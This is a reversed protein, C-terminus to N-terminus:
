KRKVMKQTFNFNQNNNQIELTYFYIGTNVARNKSDNGNWEVVYSGAYQIEEVLTVIKQGLLNYINLQVEADTQLQYHIYTIVSFPNPYNQDLKYLDSSSILDIITTDNPDITDKLIDDAGPSGGKYYSARWYISSDQNNTPNLELPVLSNGAGDPSQPWYANDNYVFSCIKEDAIGFITIREGDNDLRGKFEDDPFFGYRKYFYKSSGALVFFEQPKLATNHEFEYDVGKDFKLEGLDLTTNGTNKLEIFEFKDGDITDENLPHYHVETIKLDAYDSPVKLYQDVMASWENNYFVRAKIHTSQNIKFEGSYFVASSSIDGDAPSSSATLSPLIIFDSSTISNNVGQIALLNEGETLEGIYESINFTEKTDTEHNTSNSSNWSVPLSVNASAIQVGNLYAVFGDDYYINLLLTGIESLQAATLNFKIRMYCSTNPNTGSTYMNDSVDLSILSEYGSSKEYGAGGPSGSCVEWNSDDFTSFAMWDTGIDSKPVLVKKSASESILEFSTNDTSWKAPDKGDTTYYIMGSSSNMSLIDGKTIIGDTILNNNINLVPADVQPFMGADRLQNILIQTRQPFNETLIKSSQALWTDQTYLTFPGAAQYQHVDRRYDGWRASEGLVANEVQQSRNLWVEEAKEPTLIGDNYCLVNIRDAFLRKFEENKMLQQFVASPCNYNNEGVVNTNISEIVHESDWCVFQFGKGPKERNRFAAWNHHDWDTNAGYFNIIMYDILSVMDIMSEYQANRTGDPNNGQLKEYTEKSEVNSNVMSVMSNWADINGDMVATYDKIVDYNDADGGGYSAGFDKDIRETPNYLGWYMGNIYLHVFKNHAHPHDIRGQVDKAWADRIYQTQNRQSSEHHIFSNCFGARITITNIKDEADEGFFPYNLKSAGYESRFVLRFSHKPSKEPRRGHGGQLRVGCDEQLSITDDDFYEFSVPREWGAGVGNVTNSLPPGTYIYIGGTVSDEVSSFLNDKDTVLSITPIDKLAMKLNTAFVPDSVLEPDMEYDAIANGTLATYPGWEAPYGAPDNPQNIVDDLFLYTRTTVKSPTQGTVLAVARIISTKNITLPSTYKTGNTKSPVSGDTTYYIEASGIESSINLTFPSEYFGHNMSFVPAPIKSNVTSGSSTGPTPNTIKVYTNEFFGYSIDDEQAPFPDFVTVPTGYVDFFGLYEGSGSLKFNTHLEQGSESIDKGSAFVLLTGGSKIVIDPFLWKKSVTIDDTLSWDKLNIDSSTPNYIEIWDSYAGDKDTVTSTNLAMFEDIRIGQANVFGIFCFLFLFIWFFSNNVSGAGKCKM